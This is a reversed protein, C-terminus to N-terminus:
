ALPKILAEVAFYRNSGALELELFIIQPYQM